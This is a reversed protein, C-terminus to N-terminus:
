CSLVGPLVRLLHVQDHRHRLPHDKQQRRRAGRGRHHHGACPLRGRLAQLRHLARRGLPLPPPRARRPFSPLHSGKRLPLLNHIQPKSTNTPLQTPTPEPSQLNHHHYTTIIRLVTRARKVPSSGCLRLGYSEWARTMISTMDHITDVQGDYGVLLVSCGRGMAARRGRRRKRRGTM